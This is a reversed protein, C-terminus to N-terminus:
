ITSASLSVTLFHSHSISFVLALALAFAFELFCLEEVVRPIVFRHSFFFAFPACGQSGTPM